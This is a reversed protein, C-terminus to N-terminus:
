LPNWTIQRLLLEAAELYALQVASRRRGAGAAVVRQSRLCHHAKIFPLQVAAAAAELALLGVKHLQRFLLPHSATTLSRFVLHRAPVVLLKDAAAAVELSRSPSPAAELPRQTAAPYSRVRRSHLSSTVLPHPLPLRLQLRNRPPHSPTSLPSTLSHIM